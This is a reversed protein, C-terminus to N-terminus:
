ACAHPGEHALRDSKSAFSLLAARSGRSGGAHAKTGSGHLEPARHGSCRADRSDPRVGGVAVSAVGAAKRLPGM